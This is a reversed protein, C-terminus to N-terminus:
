YLEIPEVRYLVQFVDGEANVYCFHFVHRHGIHLEKLDSCSVVDASESQVSRSIECYSKAADIAEDESHYACMCVVSEASSGLLSSKSILLYIMITLKLLNIIIKSKQIAFTCFFVSDGILLIPNLM